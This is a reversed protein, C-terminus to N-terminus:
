FLKMFIIMNWTSPRTQKQQEDNKIENEKMNGLFWVIAKIVIGKVRRPWMRDSLDTERQFDSLLCCSAPEGHRWTQWSMCSSYIVFVFYLILARPVANGRAAEAYKGDSTIFNSKLTANVWFRRGPWRVGVWLHNLTDPLNFFSHINEKKKITEGKESIINLETWQQKPTDPLRLKTKCGAMKWMM